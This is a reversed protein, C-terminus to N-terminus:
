VVKKPPEDLQRRRLNENHQEINTMSWSENENQTIISRNEGDVYPSRRRSSQSSVDVRYVRDNNCEFEIQRDVDPGVLQASIVKQSSVQAIQLIEIQCRM